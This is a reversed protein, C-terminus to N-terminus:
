EELAELLEEVEEEVVVEEEVAEIAEELEAELDAQGQQVGENALNAITETLIRLANKSKDKFSIVTNAEESNGSFTLDTLLDVMIKADGLDDMESVALFNVFAGVANKTLIDGENEIPTTTGALVKTAWLSDNSSFLVDDKLVVFADGNKMVGKTLDQMMNEPLEEGEAMKKQMESILVREIVSKDKVDLAIAFVPMPETIKYPEGYGYDIFQEKIEVRDVIALLGGGLANKADEITLGIESLGRTVEELDEEDLQEEIYGIGKSMDFNYGMSVIPSSTNGYALLNDVEGGEKLFAIKEKLEESLSALMDITISGNEFNLLLDFKTDELTEKTKELEEAKGMSMEELYAYFSKGSFHMSIDADNSLFTAYEENVEEDTAAKILNICKDVTKAGEGKGQGGFMAKLDMPINAAIAFDSNWVIIFQDTEKIVYKFGDKEEIKANAEKELLDIFASEKKIKFIGYFDPAFSSGKAMVIQVDTAYDVGTVEEDIFFSFLLEYTFPLAGDLAGSKEILEDPLANVILFPANIKNILASVKQDRSRETSCSFVFLTTLCLLAISKFKTRM